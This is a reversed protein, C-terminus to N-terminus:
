VKYIFFSLSLSAPENVQWILCNIFVLISVQAVNTQNWLKDWSINGSCRWLALCCNLTLEHEITLEIM